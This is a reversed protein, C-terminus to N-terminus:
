RGGKRSAQREYFAEVRRVVAPDRDAPSWYRRDMMLSKITAEDDEPPGGQEFVRESPPMGQASAMLKEMARVGAATTCARRIADLEEADFTKSAWLGVAETRPGANDGLKALEQEPNPMTAQITETYAAVAKEFQEQSLGSEHAFNRWWQTLPQDDAVGPLEPLKYADPKEPRSALREQEWKARFEEEKRGFTKELEGYSRALDEPTKFKEPLWTPRETAPAAQEGAVPPATETPAPADPILSM